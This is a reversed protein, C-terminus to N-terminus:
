VRIGDQGIGGIFANPIGNDMAAPIWGASRASHHSEGAGRQMVDAADRNGDAMGVAIKHRRVANAHPHSVGINGPQPAEDVSGSHFGIRFPPHDNWLIFSWRALEGPFDQSRPWVKRTIAINIAAKTRTM